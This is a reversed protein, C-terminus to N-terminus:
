GGAVGGRTYYVKGVWSMNYTAAAGELMLAEGPRIVFPPTPLWANVQGGQGAEVNYFGGAGTAVSSEAGTLVFGGSDSDVNREILSSRTNTFGAGPFASQFVKFCKCTTQVAAFPSVALLVLYVGSDAAPGLFAKSTAGAGAPATCQAAFHEGQRPVVAGPIDLSGALLVPVMREDLDFPIPGRLDALFRALNAFEATGIQLPM